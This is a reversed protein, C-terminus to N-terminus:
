KVMSEKSNREWVMALDSGGLTRVVRTLRVLNVSLNPSKELRRGETTDARAAGIFVEGKEKCIEILHGGQRPVRSRRFRHADHSWSKETGRNRAVM